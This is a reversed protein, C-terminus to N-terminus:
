ETALDDRGLQKLYRLWELKAGAPVEAMLTLFHSVQIAPAMPNSLLIHSLLAYTWPTVREPILAKMMQDPDPVLAYLCAFATKWATYIQVDLDPRDIATEQVLGSWSKLVRRRERLAIAVLGCEELTYPLRLHQFANEYALLSRKRLAHELPRELNAALESVRLSPDIELLALGAPTWVSEDQTAAEIVQKLANEQQLGSWVVPDHRMATLIQSVRDEPLSQQIELFLDLSLM